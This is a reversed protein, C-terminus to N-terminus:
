SLCGQLIAHYHLHPLPPLQHYLLWTSLFSLTFFHMPKGAGKLAGQLVAKGGSQQLALLLQSRRADWSV